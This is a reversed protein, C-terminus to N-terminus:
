VRPKAVALLIKLSVFSMSVALALSAVSIAVLALIPM